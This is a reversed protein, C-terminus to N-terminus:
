ATTQKALSSLKKDIHLEAPRKGRVGTEQETGIHM